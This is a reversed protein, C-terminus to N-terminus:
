YHGPHERHEKEFAEGLEKPTANLFADYSSNGTSERKPSGDVTSHKEHHEAERMAKAKQAM